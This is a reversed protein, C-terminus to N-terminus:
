NKSAAQAARARQARGWDDKGKRVLRMIETRDDQIGVFSQIAPASLRAFPNTEKEAGITSPITGTGGAHISSVGSAWKLKAQVAANDPDCFAAFKLNTLTYEHGVWVKTDDPLALIKDFAAVMQAPSGTNFNGCGGVFM